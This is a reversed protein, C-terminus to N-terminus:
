GTNSCTDNMFWPGFPMTSAGEPGDLYTPPAEYQLISYPFPTQRNYACAQRHVIPLLCGEKGSARKVANCESM